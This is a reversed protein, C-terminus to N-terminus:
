RKAERELRMAWGWASNPSEKRLWAAVARIAQRAETRFGTGQGDPCIAFSVRDVLSSDPIEPHNSKAPQTAAELAEVRDRLELLCSAFAARDQDNMISQSTNVTRGVGRM